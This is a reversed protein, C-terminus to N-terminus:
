GARAVRYADVMSWIEVVALFMTPLLLRLSASSPTGPAPASLLPYASAAAAAFFAAAKFWQHNYGQGLGPLFASLVLALVPNRGPRPIACAREGDLSRYAFLLAVIVYAMSFAVALKWNAWLLGALATGSALALLLPLHCPCVILTSALWLYGRLTRKLPRGATEPKM